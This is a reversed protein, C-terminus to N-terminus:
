SIKDILLSSQHIIEHTHLYKFEAGRGIHYINNFKSLYNFVPILKDETDLELVPYAYDINFFTHEIINNKKILRLSILNSSIDQFLKENSKLHTKENSSYPIEVVICTKDSPAM